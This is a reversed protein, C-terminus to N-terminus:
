ELFMPLNMQDLKIILRSICGFNGMGQIRRSKINGSCQIPKFIIQSGGPDLTIRDNDVHMFGIVPLTVPTLFTTEPIHDCFILHRGYEGTMKM